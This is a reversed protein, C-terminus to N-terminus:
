QHTERRAPIGLRELARHCLPHGLSRLGIALSERTSRNAGDFESALIQRAVHIWPIEDDRLKAARGELWSLLEPKHARLIDAFDRPCRHGPIVALKDGDRPELRLGLSKARCFLEQLNPTM